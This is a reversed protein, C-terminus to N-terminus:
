IATLTASTVGSLRAQLVMAHLDHPTYVKGGICVAEFNADEGARLKLTTYKGSESRGRVWGKVRASNSVPAKKPEGAEILTYAELQGVFYFADIIEGEKVNLVPARNKTAAVTVYPSPRQVQTLSKEWSAIQASIYRAADSPTIDTTGYKENVVRSVELANLRQAYEISNQLRHVRSVGPRVLYDAVSGRSSRYGKVASYQGGTGSCTNTFDVFTNNSKITMAKEMYAVTSITHRRNVM